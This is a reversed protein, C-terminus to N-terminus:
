MKSHLWARAFEWDRKATRSSLELVQGIEDFNLGCFYRLEVVQAQRPYLKELEELALELQLFSEAKQPSLALNDDLEVKHGGFRKKTRVRRAHDVLIRRMTRSAVAFFHLSNEFDVLAEGM